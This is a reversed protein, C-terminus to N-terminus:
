NLCFQKLTAELFNDHAYKEHILQRQKFYQKQLEQTEKSHTDVLFYPLYLFKYCTSLNTEKFASKLDMSDILNKSQPITKFPIKQIANPDDGLKLAREHFRKANKKGFGLLMGLAAHNENLLKFLAINQQQYMKLLSSPTIGQNVCLDSLETKTIKKFKRIDILCIESRRNDFPKCNLIFHKSPFVSQYKKWVKWRNEIIRNEAYNRWIRRTTINPQCTSSLGHLGNAELWILCLCRRRSPNSHSFLNRSCSSGRSSNRSNQMSTTERKPFSLLLPRHYSIGFQINCRDM